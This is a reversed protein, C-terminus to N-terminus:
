RWDARGGSPKERGEPLFGFVEGSDLKRPGDDWCVARGDTYAESEGCESM